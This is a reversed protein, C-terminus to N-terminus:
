LTLISRLIGDVVQPGDVGVCVRMNPHDDRLPVTQGATLTGRTEVGVSMETFTAVDPDAAVAVALPDYLVCGDAWDFMPADLYTACVDALMAAARSRGRDIGRIAADGLVLGTAPNTVDLGVMTLDVGSRFVIDAAQPDFWINCEAVPTINGRGYRPEMGLAGGMFVVSRLDAALSPEKLLAMALNTQPGIAVVTVQGPHARVTDIILDVAHQPVAADALDPLDISGPEGRAGRYAEVLADPLGGGLRTGMGVAVPVDTRDAAALVAAAGRAGLEPPCNGFVTTVALLELRPDALALLLALPDDADTGPIGVGPDTDLIIKHPGTM